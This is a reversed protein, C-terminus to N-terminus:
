TQVSMPIGQQMGNIRHNSLSSFRGIFYKQRSECLDTPSNLVLDGPPPVVIELLIETIKKYMKHLRDDCRYRRDIMRAQLNRITKCLTTPMFVERRDIWKLAM